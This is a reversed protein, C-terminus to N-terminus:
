YNEASHRFQAPATKIRESITLHQYQENKKFYKVGKINKFHSNLTRNVADFQKATTFIINDGQPLEYELSLKLAALAIPTTLDVVKGKKMAAITQLAENEGSEPLVVKFVEYLIIKATILSDPDTILKEFRETYPEVSFYALWGSTDVVNM